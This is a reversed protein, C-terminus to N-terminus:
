FPSKCAAVGTERVIRASSPSGTVVHFQSGLIIDNRVNVADHSATTNMAQKPKLSTWSV